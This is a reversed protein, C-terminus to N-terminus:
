FKRDFVNQTKTVAYGLREYFRRADTRVINSRVRVRGV